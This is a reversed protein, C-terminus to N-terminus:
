IACIRDVSVGLLEGKSAQTPLSGREFSGTARDKSHDRVQLIAAKVFQSLPKVVELDHAANATQRIPKYSGFRKEIKQSVDILICVAVGVDAAANEAGGCAEILQLM